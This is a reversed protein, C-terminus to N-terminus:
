GLGRLQDCMKHAAARREDIYLALDADHIDEATKQSKVMETRVDSRVVLGSRTKTSPQM